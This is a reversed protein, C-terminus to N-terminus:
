LKLFFYKRSFSVKMSDIGIYEHLKKCIKVPMKSRAKVDVSGFQGLMSASWLNHTHRFLGRLRRCSRQNWITLTTLLDLPCDCSQSKDIHAQILENSWITYLAFIQHFFISELQTSLILLYDILSLYKKKNVGLSAPFTRSKLRTM